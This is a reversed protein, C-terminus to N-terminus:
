AYWKPINKFAQTIEKDNIYELLANDFEIHLVELDFGYKQVINNFKILLEQKTM